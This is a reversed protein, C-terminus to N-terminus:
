VGIITFGKATYRSLAIANDSDNIISQPIILKKPEGSPVLDGVSTYAYLSDKHISQLNRLEIHKLYRNNLFTFMPLDVLSNAVFHTLKSRNLPSENTNLGAMMSTVSPLVLHIHSSSSSVFRTPISQLYNMELIEISAQNFISVDVMTLNPSNAKFEKINSSYFASRGIYNIKTFDIIQSKNKFDYFGEFYSTGYFSSEGISILNDTVFVKEIKSERFSFNGLSTINPFYVERVTSNIFASDVTNRGDINTVKGDYDYYSTIEQNSKFSSAPIKYSINIKCRVDNGVVQYYSINSEAVGIFNAFASKTTYSAGIGGVVTNYKRKPKSIIFWDYATINVM